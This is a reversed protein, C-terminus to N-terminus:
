PRGSLRTTAPKPFTHIHRNFIIREFLKRLVSILSVPRYSGPDDKRKGKGKYIPIIISKEWDNPCSETDLVLNFLAKSAMVVPKGGCLIHKTGVHKTYKLNLYKVSTTITILKPMKSVHVSQTFLSPIHNPITFTLCAEITSLWVKWWM